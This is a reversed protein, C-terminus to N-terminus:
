DPPRRCGAAHRIIQVITLARGPVICQLVHVAAITRHRAAARVNAEVGCIGCGM